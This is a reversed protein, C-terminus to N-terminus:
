QLINVTGLLEENQLKTVFDICLASSIEARTFQIKDALHQYFLTNITSEVLNRLSSPLTGQGLKMQLVRLKLNGYEAYPVLIVALQAQIPTSIDLTTLLTGDKLMMRAEAAVPLLEENWRVQLNIGISGDSTSFHIDKLAMDVGQLPIEDIRMSMPLLTALHIDFAVNM